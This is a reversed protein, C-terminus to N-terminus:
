TAEAHPEPTDSEAALVYEIPLRVSLQPNLTFRAISFGIGSSQLRSSTGTTEEVKVQYGASEISPNM